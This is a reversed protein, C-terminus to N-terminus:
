AANGLGEGLEPPSHYGLSIKIRRESTWLSCCDLTQIFQEIPTALWKRPLLSRDDSPRILRRM